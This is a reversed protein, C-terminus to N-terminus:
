FNNILNKISITRDLNDKEEQTIIPLNHREVLQNKEDLNGLKPAM